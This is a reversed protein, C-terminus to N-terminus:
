PKNELLGIAWELAAAEALFWSLSPSRVREAFPIANARLYELRRRLSNIRSQDLGAPFPRTCVPCIPRHTPGRTVAPQKCSM